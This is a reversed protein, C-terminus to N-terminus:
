IMKLLMQREVYDMLELFYTTPITLFSRSSAYYLLLVPRVWHMKEISIYLLVHNAGTSLRSVASCEATENQM